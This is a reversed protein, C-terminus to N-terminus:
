RKQQLAPDKSINDKNDFDNMKSLIAQLLM